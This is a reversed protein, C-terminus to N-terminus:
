PPPVYRLSSGPVRITCAESCPFLSSSEQAERSLLPSRHLEGDVRAGTSSARSPSELHCCGGLLALM